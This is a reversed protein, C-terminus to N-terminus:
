KNKFVYTFGIGLSYNLQVRRLFPMTDVQDKPRFNVSHDYKTSAFLNLTMFKLVTFDLKNDWNVRTVKDYNTFVDLYTTYTVRDKAFPVKMNVILQSGLSSKQRKDPEVSYAARLLSDKVFTMSGTLPSINITLPIKKNQYTFGLGLTLTGPSMFDSVLTTDTPSKRGKSFQSAFQFLASYSWNKNLDWSPNINLRFMDENKYTVTDIISLGYRAELDYNFNFKNKKYQHSFSLAGRGTFTNQGGAAWNDFGTQTMQLTGTLNVTNREKRIRRREAQYRSQSFFSNTLDIQKSLTDQIAKTDAEKPTVKNISFQASAQDIGAALTLMFLILRLSKM